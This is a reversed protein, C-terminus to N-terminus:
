FLKGLVPLKTTAEVYVLVVDDKPLKEMILFTALQKLGQVSYQDAVTLLHIIHLM